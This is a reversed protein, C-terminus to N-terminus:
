FQTLLFLAKERSFCPCESDRSLSFYLVKHKEKKTTTVPNM